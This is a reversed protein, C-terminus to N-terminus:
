RGQSKLFRELNQRDRELDELTLGQEYIGHRHLLADTEFRGVLRHGAPRVAIPDSTASM